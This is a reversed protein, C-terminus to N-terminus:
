FYPRGESLRGHACHVSSNYVCHNTIEDSGWLLVMLSHMCQEHPVLLLLVIKVYNKNEHMAYM